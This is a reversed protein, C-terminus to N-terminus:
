LSCEMRVDERVFGMQKKAREYEVKFTPSELKYGVFVLQCRGVARIIRRDM